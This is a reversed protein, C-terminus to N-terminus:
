VHARGIKRVNGTSSLTMRDGIKDAVQALSIQEREGEALNWRVDIPYVVSKLLIRFTTAKDSYLHVWQNDAFRVDFIGDPPAPPLDFARNGADASVGFLLRQVHGRADRVVISNLGEPPSDSGEKAIPPIQINQVLKGSNKLKVWYARGPHLSDARTYGGAFEFFGSALNDSPITRM